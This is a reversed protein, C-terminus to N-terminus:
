GTTAEKLRIARREAIWDQVRALPWTNIVQDPPLLARRAIAVGFMMMPLLAPHHADSSIVLLAGSPAVRKILPESLDLRRWNANIEWVIRRQNAAPLLHDWDLHAADRHQVLRGTPHALIDVQNGTIAALLRSTYTENPLDESIPISGVVIDVMARMDEHWHLRGEPGIDVEVAKLFTLGTQRANYRDIEHMQRALREPTVGSEAGDPIAHSTVAIYRYGLDLAAAGIDDLTGGGDDWASHVHLDGQIANPTLLAPMQDPTQWTLEPGGTRLEPPPVVLGLTRYIATEDPTPVLNGDSVRRLHHEDLRYGLAMARERLKIVHRRNGTLHLQLCGFSAPAGLHVDTPLGSGLRVSVMDAARMLVRDIMPLALCGEIVTEPDDTAVCVDIDGITEEWRRASGVLDVRQVGPLRQMAAILSHIVPLAQGLPVRSSAHEVLALDQRIQAEREPGITPDKALVGQRLATELDRLTVIRLNRFLHNALAADIGPVGMLRRVEPPFLRRLHDLYGMSGHDRYEVIREAISEDVGLTSQITEVTPLLAVPQPFDALVRAADRYMQQREPNGGELALLTAIERLLMALEGNSPVHAADAAAQMAAMIPDEAAM